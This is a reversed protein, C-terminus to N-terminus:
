GLSKEFLLFAAVIGGLVVPGYYGPSGVYDFTSAAVVVAMMLFLFRKM